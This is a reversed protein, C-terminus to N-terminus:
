LQEKNNKFWDTFFNTMIDEVQTPDLDAQSYSDQIYIKLAEYEEDTLRYFVRVQELYDM